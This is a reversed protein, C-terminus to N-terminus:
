KGHIVSETDRLQQQQFMCREGEGGLAMAGIMRGFMKCRIPSVGNTRMLLIGLAYPSLHSIRLNGLVRTSVRECILCFAAGTSLSENVSSHHVLHTQKMTVLIISSTSSYIRLVFTERIHKYHCLTFVEISAAAHLVPNTQPHHLVSLSSPDEFRSVSYYLGGRSVSTIRQM